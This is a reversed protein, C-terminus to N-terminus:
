ARRVKRAPEALVRLKAFAVPADTLRCWAPLDQEAGPDLARLEFVQRSALSKMRGALEILLEGCGLEGAYWEEHMM